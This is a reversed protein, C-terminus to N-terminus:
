DATTIEVEDLSEVGIKRALEARAALYAHSAELYAVRAEYFAKLPDLAERMDASGQLDAALGYQNRWRRASDYRREEIEIRVRADSATRWAEEIELKMAGLAREQQAETQVTRAKSEQLRGYQQAFDFKWQLGVAVGFTLTDFPNSYPRTFLTDSNVCAGDQEVRRCIRQMAPEETSWGFGFDFAVFLNPYFDRRSLDEQIRRAQVAQELQQIEPRNEQAAEQYRALEGIPLDADEPQLAPVEMADDTDTLYRLAAETLDRLRANDLLMTDLEANFIQLRRLDSTDFDAEGFARDDEM